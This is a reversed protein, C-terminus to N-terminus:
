KLIKKISIKVKDIWKYSGYKKAVYEFGKYNYDDWFDNRNEAVETPYELQPQMCRGVGCSILEIDNKIDQLIIKGKISNVLVLSIGKNDIIKSISEKDGWFDGITIDSPRELNTFKCNHCSPRHIYHKYFLRRYIRLDDSEVFAKGNKYEIKWKQNEWGQEKDRFSLDIIKSQQRKEMYEIFEAFIKPSPTGHCVIDCTILKEYDKKLYNNLGAVQCPTGSFLVYKGEELDRKVQKFIFGLFSQVYKSGRFKDRDIKNTARSHIVNFNEDFRAGYVVGGSALIKDSIATFIGGSASQMRIDDSKHKAGYAEIELLRDYSTTDIFPCVSKCIGCEVCLEKNISPYLFGEEDEKMIIAKKPCSNMCATCGCCSNKEEFVIM